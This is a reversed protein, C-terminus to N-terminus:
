KLRTLLTRYPDLVAKRAGTPASLHFSTEEGDAFVVGLLVSKNGLAAYVPVATVLNQPADSQLITGSIATSGPKDSYKVNRLELRPLATGNVWGEYFWNLSKRGDFWLSPPLDEEFVELVERTTVPRGQYRERLRRLARSFPEDAMRTESVESLHTKGGRSGDLMMNRLMHFLWTGRGYSIAEYGGPFHSSSLRTGLTVPGADALPVGDKNKTLLDDRYKELVAHFKNPDQSELVMLSSYNALAEALWQDRYSSWSVLDGWWQHATEHAVVSNSLSREVESMRLQAKEDNTLFSFSSLFILSPWGQSLNGPLQTLALSSYPYPGFRRAYFEIARASTEAVDQANRAPSPAPPPISLSRIQPRFVSPLGTDGSPMPKEEMKPFSREMGHSAYAEVVVDGARAAARTYKGLNFGAVPIPRESVWRNVQEGPVNEASDPNGQSISPQPAETRKGTAVLTWGPPFHFELDFNSMELGRNPYWTGRAGVYLLGNGADSLVDGGYSFRLSIKQGQHLPRPFVVAVLDNGRRSLQTGEMAPNHIFELSQGDAEVQKVALFRSLEFLLTRQGGHRVEIQLWADADLSSPPKVRVRIRFSPIEFGDREEQQAARGGPKQFHDMQQGFAFKTWMDYYTAGDVIRTQGVWLPETATSDYFVDFPGLKRGQFVAHLIHDGSGEKLTSKVTAPSGDVPLYRSFSVLLRLADPQALNKAAENWQAIFERANDAPLLAPELDAFTDDNFRLYATVFGEELIAAGTFLAMSGREAQNPPVLLVEGEGEFFAGTIRGEVDETFAITGDDLTIHCAGREIVADRIKYVRSKDLGVTRLQQYLAEASNTRLAQAGSNIGSAQTSADSINQGRLVRPVFVLFVFIALLLAEVRIGKGQMGTIVKTM